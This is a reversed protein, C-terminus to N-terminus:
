RAPYDNENASVESGSLPKSVFEVFILGVLVMLLRSKLWRETM